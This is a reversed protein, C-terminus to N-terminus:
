NLPEAIQINATPPVKALSWHQKAWTWLDRTSENDSDEPVNQGLFILAQRLQQGAQAPDLPKAFTQKSLKEGAPNIAVPLHAYEPTDLGLITQLYIQPLTADLLDAGRVIHTIQQEADDISAALHYSYLGDRRRLIIDGIDTELNRFCPEQITDNFGITEGNVRLRIAVPAGQRRNQPSRCIGPYIPGLPGTLGADAIRKRSCTCPYTHGEASLKDIAAAYATHRRSQYIVEGDWDFGFDELTKMIDAAAGSQERPPDLDDIRLLWLGRNARAELYSGVAAILSGFHLPGTPSPAFRGIYPKSGNSM